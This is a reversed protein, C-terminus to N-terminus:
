FEHEQGVMLVLCYCLVNGFLRKKQELIRGLDFARFHFCLFSELTKSLGANMVAIYWLNEVVYILFM